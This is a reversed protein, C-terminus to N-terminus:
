GFYVVTDFVCRNECEDTSQSGSVRQVLMQYLVIDGMPGTGLGVMFKSCWPSFCPLVRALSPPNMCQPLWLLCHSMSKGILVPLYKPLLPVGKM